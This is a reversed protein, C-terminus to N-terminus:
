EYVLDGGFHGTVAVLINGTIAFLLQAAAYNKSEIKGFRWFFARTTYFGFVTLAAFVHTRVKGTINEIGKVDILGAGMALIMFMYGLRFTFRAFRFYHDDKKFRWLSLLILELFYFAIPFHVVLPHLIPLNM